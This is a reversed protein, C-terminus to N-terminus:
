SFLDSIAAGKGGGQPGAGAGDFVSGGAQGGGGPLSSLAGAPPMEAHFEDEAAIKGDLREVDKNQWLQINRLGLGLGCNGSQDYAYAGLSAKVICGAFIEAANTIKLPRRKPDNPDAWRSVVGPADKSQANIVCQFKTNDWKPTGDRKLNNRNLPMRLQNNQLMQRVVDVSQWKRIAAEQLAAMIQNYLAQDEEDLTIPILLLCGYRPEQPQQRQFQPNNRVPAPSWLHPYSIVCKPTFISM